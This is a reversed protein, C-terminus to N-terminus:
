TTDLGDSEATPNMFSLIAQPWQGCRPNFVAPAQLDAPAARAEREDRREGLRGERVVVEGAQALDAPWGAMRGM